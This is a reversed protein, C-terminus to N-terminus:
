LLDPRSANYFATRTYDCYYYTYQLMNSPWPPNGKWVASMWVPLRAGRHSLQEGTRCITTHASSHISSLLDQRYPRAPQYRFEARQSTGSNQLCTITQSKTRKSEFKKFIQILPMDNWTENDRYQKWKGDIISVSHCSSRLQSSYYRRQTYIHYTSPFCVATVLLIFITPQM